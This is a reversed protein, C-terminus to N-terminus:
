EYYKEVIIELLKSLKKLQEIDEQIDGAHQNLLEAGRRALLLTRKLVEEEAPIGVILMYESLTAVNEILEQPGVLEIDLSEADVKLGGLHDAIRKRLVRLRRLGALVSRQMEIDTTDRRVRVLSSRLSQILRVHSQTVNELTDLFEAADVKVM